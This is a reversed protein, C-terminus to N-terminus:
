DSLDKASNFSKQAAGIFSIIFKRQSSLFYAKVAFEELPGARVFGLLDSELLPVSGSGLM